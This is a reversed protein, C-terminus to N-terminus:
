CDTPNLDELSPVDDMVPTVSCTGLARLEDLLALPRTGNVLAERVLSFRIRWTREAEPAPTVSPGACNMAKDIAAILTEGDSTARDDGQALARIHDQASLVAAVLEPTVQVEGKRVRDFASECHHAFAALADFGFMAGSGKLTHLARFVQAIIDANTPCRELDLLGQELQDLLEQAEVRFVQAPDTITM